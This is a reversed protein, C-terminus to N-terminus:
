FLSFTKAPIKEYYQQLSNLGFRLSPPPSNNLLDAFFNKFINAYKKMLIPLTMRQKLTINTLPSKISALGLTKLSELLEKLKKQQKILKETNYKVEICFNYDIQLNSKKFKKFSLYKVYM